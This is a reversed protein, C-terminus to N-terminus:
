VAYTAQHFKINAEDQNHPGRLNESTGIKAFTKSHVRIVSLGVDLLFLMQFLIKTTVIPM